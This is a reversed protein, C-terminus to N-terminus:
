TETRKKITVQVFKKKLAFALGSIVIAYGCQPSELVPRDKAPSLLTEIINIVFIIIRFHVILLRPKVASVVHNKVPKHSSTYEPKESIQSNEKKNGM